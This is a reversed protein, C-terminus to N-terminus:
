YQCTLTFDANTDKNTFSINFVKEGNFKTHTITPQKTLEYVRDIQSIVMSNTLSNCREDVIFMTTHGEQLLAYLLELM